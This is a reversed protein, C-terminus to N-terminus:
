KRFPEGCQNIWEECGCPPPCTEPGAGPPCEKFKWDTLRVIDLIDVICNCDADGNCILYPTPPPCTGVPAGSPCGKFKFDILHIIDLIDTPPIGNCEGPICECFSVSIFDSHSGLDGVGDEAIVMYYYTGGTGVDYDIFSGGSVGPNDLSGSPDDIRFFSGESPHLRRYVHYTLGVEDDWTITISSSSSTVGTLNAPASPWSASSLVIDEQQYSNDPIFGSLIAMEGNIKNFFHYDYPNGATASIYNQFNDFWHGADYGAGVTGEIKIEGDTDDLYGYFSLDANVPVSDDGNEVAGFISGQAKLPSVGALCIFLLFLTNITISYYSSKM